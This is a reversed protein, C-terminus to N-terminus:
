PRRTRRHSAAPRTRTRRARARRARRRPGARRGAPVAARAGRPRGSRRCPPAAYAADPLATGVGPVSPQAPLAPSVPAHLQPEPPPPAAAPVPVAAPAAPAGIRELVRSYEAELERATRQLQERFRLLEDVQGTLGGLRARAEALLRDADGMGTAPRPELPAPPRSPRAPVAGTAATGRAPAAAAAPRAPRPPPRLPRRGAGAELRRLKRELESLTTSVNGGGPENPTRATVLAVMPVHVAGEPNAPLTGAGEGAGAPTQSHLDTTDPSAPM